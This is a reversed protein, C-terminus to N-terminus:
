LLVQLENITAPHGQKLDKTNVYFLRGNVIDAFFFKGTLAPVDHGTYEYGSSMAKGEDHDYQIVPYTIKADADDAQLPYVRNMNGYELHVFTGERIPWGYDHGAEIISFSEINGHGINSAMMKGSKLWTIRHPNRFGYAYIEGALSDATNGAFPNKKPIGYQGNRSNRGAPDIRIITGWLTQKNHALFPFKNEVAGGDGIGVYLLGYDADEPKALRNFTLEQMGHIGTVMDIRLLERGKGVFPFAKPDTTKWEDIVWQLTVKISDNYNFDAKKTHPPEAHSTYFLGNSAFDPHFAFSGFGTALGPKHIFDKKEKAMDFYVDPKDNNLFYMKGRLDLLFLKDTGPQYDLKIIRTKPQEESSFPVQMVLKLDATLTSMAIPDPIPNKLANPDDPEVVKSPPENTNLFAIVAEVKEDSYHSFPPMLTRFKDFLKTAREDGSDILTKPNQIFKRIWDTRVAHTIGGLAPGIADTDFNHCSSCDQNFIITGEAITTSDRAIEREASRRGTCGVAVILVLMVLFLQLKKM